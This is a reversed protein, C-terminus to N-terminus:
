KGMGAQVGTEVVKRLAAYAIITPLSILLLAAFIEGIQLHFLQLFYNPVQTILQLDEKQLFIIGLFTENWTSLFTIIAVVALAPRAIPLLVLRLNQLSSCGDIRGAELLENSIGNFFNRMILLTLPILLATKPLIVAWYTNILGLSKILYFIPVVLVVGPIVLGILILGFLIDRGRFDLKSFAFAALTDIVLVLAITVATVFASNLFFRYFQPLTLVQAYNGAGDGALSTSVAAALPTLIIASTIILLIQVGVRSRLTAGFFM